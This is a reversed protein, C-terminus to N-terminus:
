VAGTAIDFRLDNISRTYDGCVTKGNLKVCYRGRGNKTVKYKNTGHTLTIVGGDPNRRSFVVAETVERKAERLQFQLDEVAAFADELKAIIKEVKNMQKM